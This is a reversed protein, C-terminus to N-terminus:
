PLAQVDVIRTQPPLCIGEEACGQYRVKLKRLPASASLEGVLAGARYIEVEGFHEDRIKEGAPLRLTGLSAGAPEVAELKIKGRYLYYGPAIQWEIRLNNGRAEVPMLQFAQDPKLVRGPDDGQAWFDRANAPACLLALLLVALAPM